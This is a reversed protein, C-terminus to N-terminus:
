KNAGSKRFSAFLVILILFMFVAIAATSFAVVRLAFAVKHMDEHIEELDEAIHEMIEMFEEDGTTSGQASAIPVLVFLILGAVLIGAFVQKNVNKKM